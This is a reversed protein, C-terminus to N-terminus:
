CLQYDELRRLAHYGHFLGKELAEKDERDKEHTLRQQSEWLQMMSKIASKTDFDNKVDRALEKSAEDTEELIVELLEFTKAKLKMIIFNKNQLRQLIYYVYGAALIITTM